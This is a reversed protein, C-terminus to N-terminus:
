ILPDLAIVIVSAYQKIFLPDGSFTITQTGWSALRTELTSGSLIRFGITDYSFTWWVDGPVDEHGDTLMGLAGPIFAINETHPVQIGSSPLTSYTTQTVSLVRAYKFGSDFTVRGTSDLVQMGYSEPTTSPPASLIYYDFSKNSVSGGTSPGGAVITWTFVNGSVVLEFISFLGTSDHPRLAILPYKGPVPNTYSIKVALGPSIGRYGGVLTGVGSAVVALNSYTDDILINNSDGIANFGYSM